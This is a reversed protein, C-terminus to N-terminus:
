SLGDADALDHYHRVHIAKPRSRTREGEEDKGAPEGQIEPGECLGEFVAAPRAKRLHDLIDDSWIGSCKGDPEMHFYPNFLPNPSDLDIFRVRFNSLRPFIKLSRCGQSVLNEFCQIFEWNYIGASQNLTSSTKERCCNKVVLDISRLRPISHSHVAFSRIANQFFRACVRGTYTLSKLQPALSGLVLCVHHTPYVKHWKHPSYAEKSYLGELCINLHVITRSLYTLSTCMAIYGKTKPKQYSCHWEHLNPFACSLVKFDTDERIVNWAGKIVLTSINPLTPLQPITSISCADCTPSPNSSWMLPSEKSWTVVAKHNCFYQVKPPKKCHGGEITLACAKPFHVRVCIFIDELTANHSAPQFAASMDQEELRGFRSVDFTAQNAHHQPWGGLPLVEVPALVTRSSAKVEWIPLWVEVHRVYSQLVPHTSFWDGCVKLEEITGKIKVQSKTNATSKTLDSM